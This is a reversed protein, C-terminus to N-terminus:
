PDRVERLDDVRTDMNNRYKSKIDYIKRRLTSERIKLLEAIESNTLGDVKLDILLLEKKTLWYKLRLKKGFRTYHPRMLEPFYSPNLLEPLWVDHHMQYLAEEKLLGNTEM